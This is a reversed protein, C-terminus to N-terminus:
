AVGLLEIAPRHEAVRGLRHPFAPGRHIAAVADVQGAARQQRRRQVALRHQEFGADAGEELGRQALAIAHLFRVV